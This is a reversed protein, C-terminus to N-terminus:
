HDGSRSPQSEAPKSSDTAPESPTDKSPTQTTNPSQNSTSEKEPTKSHISDNGQATTTNQTTGADSSTMTQNKTSATNQQNDVAAADTKPATTDSVTTRDTRIQSTHSTHIGQGQTVIVVILAFLLVCTISVAGLVLTAQRRTSRVQQDYYASPIVQTADLHQASNEPVHTAQSASVGQQAAQDEILADAFPIHSLAQGVPTDSTVHERLKQASRSLIHRYIQSAAMSAMAGIIVGIISGALGIRDSLAFATGAALGSAVIQSISVSHHLRKETDQPVIETM